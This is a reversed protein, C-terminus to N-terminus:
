RDGEHTIFRNALAKLQAAEEEDAAASFLRDATMAHVGARNAIALALSRFEALATTRDVQRALAERAGALEEDLWDLM